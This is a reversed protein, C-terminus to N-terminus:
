RLSGRDRVGGRRPGLTETTTSPPPRSSRSDRGVDAQPHGRRCRSEVQERKDAAAAARPFDRGFAGAVRHDVEEPSQPVRRAARLRGAESRPERRKAVNSGAGHRGGAGRREPRGAGARSSPGASPMPRAKPMWDSRRAGRRRGRGCGRRRASGLDAWRGAASQQNEGSAPGAALASARGPAASRGSRRGARREGRHPQRGRGRRRHRRGPRLVTAPRVAPSREGAAQEVAGAHGVNGAAGLAASMRRGGREGKRGHRHAPAPRRRGRPHARARSTGWPATRWPKTRRAASQRAARRGPSLVLAQRVRSPGPLTAAAKRPSRHVAGIIQAIPPWRRACRKAMMRASASRERKEASSASIATRM